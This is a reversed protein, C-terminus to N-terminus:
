HVSTWTSPYGANAIETQLQNLNIWFETRNDAVDYASLKITVGYKGRMAAFVIDYFEKDHRVVRDNRNYILPNSVKRYINIEKSVAGNDSAIVIGNADRYCETTIISDNIASITHEKDGLIIKSGVRPVFKQKIFTSTTDKITNRYYYYCVLLKVVPPMIDPAMAQEVLVDTHLPSLMSDGVVYFRIPKMMHFGGMMMDEPHKEWEDATGYAAFNKVWQGDTNRKYVIRSIGQCTYSGKLVISDPSLINEGKSNAGVPEIVENQNQCAVIALGALICWLFIRIKKM